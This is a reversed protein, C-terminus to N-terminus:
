RKGFSKFHSHRTRRFWRAWLQASHSSTPTFYHESDISLQFL